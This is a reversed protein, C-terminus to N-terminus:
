ICCFANIQRQEFLDISAFGIMLWSSRAATSAANSNFSSVPQSTITTDIPDRGASPINLSSRAIPASLTQPMPGEISDVLLIVTDVTKIIREVESLRPSDIHAGLINMGDTISESGINFLM